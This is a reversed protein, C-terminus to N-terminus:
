ILGDRVEDAIYRVQTNTSVDELVVAQPFLDRDFFRRDKHLLLDYPNFSVGLKKLEDLKEQHKMDRM